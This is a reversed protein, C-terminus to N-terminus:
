RVEELDPDSPDGGIVRYRKGGHEVIEGPSYSRAAPASRPAAGPAQQGAPAIREFGRSAAGRNSPLSAQDHLQIGMQALKTFDLTPLGPQVAGQALEQVHQTLLDTLGRRTFQEQAMLNNFRNQFNVTFGRAGGALSREYGVLYAAYRKAFLLADQAGQDNGLRRREDETLEQAPLAANNRVADQASTIYRELFSRVQGGRGINEPLTNAQDIIALGEGITKATNVIRQAGDKNVPLATESFLFMSEPGQTRLWNQLNVNQTIQMRAQERAIRMEELSRAQVFGRQQQQAQFDRGKAAESVQLAQDQLHQQARLAEQTVQYASPLGQVRLTQAAIDAGAARLESEAQTTAKQLDTEALKMAREFIGKLHESQARYTQLTAEFNQRERQYLDNRGQRWGNLMGTMAAMGAMGAGKSKGGLATGVVGLLSFLTAMDTANERTPVFAPPPGQEQLPRAAEQQAAGLRDYAAGMTQGRQTEAERTKTAIDGILQDRQQVQAQMPALMRQIPPALGAPLTETAATPDAM